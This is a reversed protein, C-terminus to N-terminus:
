RLRNEILMQTLAEIALNLKELATLAEPGNINAQAFDLAGKALKRGTDLVALTNLDRCPAQIKDRCPPLLAYGVVILNASLYATRYGDLRQQAESRPSAPNTACAGLLALLAVSILATLYKTM